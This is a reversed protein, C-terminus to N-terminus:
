FDRGVILSKNQVEMHEASKNREVIATSILPRDILSLSLFEAKNALESYRQFTGRDIQLTNRFLFGRHSGIPKLANPACTTPQVVISLYIESVPRM